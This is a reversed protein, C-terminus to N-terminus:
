AFKTVMKQFAPPKVKFVAAVVNWKGCNKLVTLTMFLVDKASYASKRGRGTNWNMTLHDCVLGWGRLREFELPVFNTMTHISEVDSNLYSDYVPSPSDGDDDTDDRQLLVVADRDAMRDENIRRLTAISQIAHEPTIPRPARTSRRATQAAVM